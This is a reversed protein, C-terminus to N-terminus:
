AMDTMSQLAEPQLIVIWGDQLAVIGRRQMQRLCRNVNERSCGIMAALDSQSDALKAPSAGRTACRENSRLLLTKALRASIDLFGIDLARQNAGRLRACLLELIRLCAPPHRELFALVERRELALLECSTQATADASREKGDFLAVEGLVGGCQLDTLIISRGGSEPLSIRVTGQVVIMMCHGPSGFRFIVDGAQFKKRSAHAMLEIRAVEDLARLFLCQDLIRHDPRSAQPTPTRM